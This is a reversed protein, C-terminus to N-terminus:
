LHAAVERGLFDALSSAEAETLHDTEGLLGTRIDVDLTPETLPRSEPQVQRFDVGWRNFGCSCRFPRHRQEDPWGLTASLFRLPRM